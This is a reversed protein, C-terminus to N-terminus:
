FLGIKKYGQHLIRSEKRGFNQAPHPSIFGFFKISIFGIERKNAATPKAKGTATVAVFTQASLRTNVSEL